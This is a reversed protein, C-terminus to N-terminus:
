TFSVKHLFGKKYTRSLYVQKAKGDLGIVGKLIIVDHDMENFADTSILESTNVQVLHPAIELLDEMTYNLVTYKKGERNLIQKNRPSDRDTKVYIIDSILVKIKGPKEAVNFVEHKKREILAENNREGLLKYAKQCIIEFREEQFPKLLVDIPSFALSEPVYGYDSTIFVIPKGIDTLMKAVTFGNIKPMFIDLFVMDFNLGTHTDLFQKPCNFSKIVEVYPSEICLGELKNLASENDDVIVCKLKKNM